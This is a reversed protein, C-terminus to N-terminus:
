TVAIYYPVNLNVMIFGVDNETDGGGLIIGHTMYLVKSEAGAPELKGDTGELVAFKGISSSCDAGTIYRAVGHVQVDLRHGATAEAASCSECAFGAAMGSAATTTKTIQGATSHHAVVQNITILDDSKVKYQLCEVHQVGPVDEYTYAM